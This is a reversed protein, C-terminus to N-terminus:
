VWWVLLKSKYVQKQQALTPNTVQFLLVAMLSLYLLINKMKM